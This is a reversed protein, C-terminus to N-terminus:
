NMKIKSLAGHDLLVRVILCRLHDWPLQLGLAPVRCSSGLNLLLRLLVVKGCLPLESLKDLGLVVERLLNDGLSFDGRLVHLALHVLFLLSGLAEMLLDIGIHACNLVM